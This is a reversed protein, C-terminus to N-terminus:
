SNNSNGGQSGMDVGFAAVYKERYSQVLAEGKAEWEQRNAEAYNLYEDSAVGFVQCERLKKALPIIYFDFFGMESKYWGISPDVDTRGDLFAKYCEFFFKENWRIYIHWHQMTHAVDSAQILHEIVITAKRNADTEADEKGENQSDPSFAKQWRAKRQAGLQKDAIDTALVANVLLLRFRDFEDQSSYICARLEQYRSEALIDWALDVSNQEAISQNQYLEALETKERVLTANPVGPHDVDHILASLAVAFQALPDSTIGFTYEHADNYTDVNPSVVRTLLKTVSMTVHTAHEFNHFHNAHYLNAIRRVYDRLQFAVSPPIEVEGPNIKYAREQSHLNIIEVVEDLPRSGAAHLDRRLSIAICSSVDLGGRMAVVRKLLRQLVSVTWDISRDLKEKRSDELIETFSDGINQFFTSERNSSGTASSGLSMSSSRRHSMTNYALWFTSLLGKGKAEIKDERPVVWMEDNNPAEMILAATDASVQIKNKFGTSEMRAATNVTDGFLQFRAKEGRLVGATVPGSHIGLRMGLEGTSPGLRSELKRVVQLMRRLCDRAFKAIVVAHDDRKEPLGAAAMYCDGVTEVKFVKEKRAIRDFSSYIQELLEFVQSPERESSWATFGVIDAFMVSASPFLEAIPRTEDGHGDVNYNGLQLGKHFMKADFTLASGKKGFKGGADAMLRDAVEQPFLSSVIATSREATSLVKNQRREVFCDYMLFMGITFLFVCVVTVTYVTPQSNNYEAAFEDSPYLSLTHVCEMEGDFPNFTTSVLYDNYQGDHFDGIGFYSVEGGNIMYSFTQNCTNSVVLVVGGIGDPLLDLFYNHWPLSSSVTAVIDEISPNKTVKGYIPVTIFSRPWEESVEFADLNNVESLVPSNQRVMREFVDLFYSYAFLDFNVKGWTGVMPSWRTIFKDEQEKETYKFVTAAAGAAVLLLIFIMLYKGYKVAKTEESALNPKATYDPESSSPVSNVDTTQRSASSVSGNEEVSEPATATIKMSMTDKGKSEWERRNAEAYLLYEDSAVGFVQCEKLKKALPIVYFDLFGLESEYWDLSPDKDARGALYAKYSECFFRENWRIYIHWHQMTHAVDSAQILHEIVITAKRNSADEVSEIECGCGGNECAFAKNWRAKRAAGLDKDMIDTAMVANVVMQRFRLHDEQNNYICQRLKSFRDESLLEWAIDVSTQEAVSQNKYRIANDTGERVLISNPVGPHDVDHILAALAVAFQALPDSTIGFTYEHLVKDDDFCDINPTVVRSLLKTVSMAVHTAHEFNHFPNNHYRRSIEDIFTRLQSIVSLPIHVKTPDVLYSRQESHLNIIEVVEDLPRQGSRPIERVPMADANSNEADSRMAVVRQLLSTLVDMTWDISRNIKERESDELIEMAILDDLSDGGSSQDSSMSISGCVSNTGSMSKAGGMNSYALWFTELYGKGKAQIKDTRPIVWLDDNDATEGLLSATYASLQVKNKMGTSEMRSATNVTDGFLQFRAKDGRLVGATVPGSHIGIRMGLEGTAPGLRSELKRVVHLMKRLCDRAFKAMALAHDDRKEPLGAAAMYCDGITEVKFIKKRKAIHDFSSYIEELLEFVQSPERESSWATFGVIDAFLVTASPFLEAIVNSHKKEETAMNKRPVFETGGLISDQFTSLRRDPKSTASARISKEKMLQDAVQKPFLSTVIANSREATNLVKNQRQEVYCDYTLFVSITFLFIVCVAITFIAPDNTQFEGEFDASPYISLTYPCDMETDFPNFTTKVVMDNTGQHHFDGVGLYDVSPGQILFTFEQDCPNSVVLFIDPVGEPLLNQFFTHWNMTSAVTAAIMDSTPNPVVEGYVPVVVMSMPWGGLQYVNGELNYVQSFAPSNLAVVQDFTDAYYFYSLLDYNLAAPVQAYPSTQWIPAFMERGDTTNSGPSPPNSNFIFPHFYPIEGVSGNYRMSEAIWNEARMSTFKEWEDQLEMPVLPVLSIEGSGIQRRANSGIAAFVPLTVFPWTSNSGVAFATTQLALNTLFDVIKAANTEYSSIVQRASEEFKLEFDDYDKNKILTYTAVASGAAVCLLLTVMITKGMTVAKTERSVFNTPLTSPPTSSNNTSEDSNHKSGSADNSSEEEEEEWDKLQTDSTDTIAAKKM